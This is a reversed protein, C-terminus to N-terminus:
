QGDLYLGWVALLRDKDVAGVGPTTEKVFM